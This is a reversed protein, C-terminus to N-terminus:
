EERRKGFSFTPLRLITTATVLLNNDVGDIVVSMWERVNHRCFTITFIVIDTTMISRSQPRWYSSSSVPMPFPVTFAM